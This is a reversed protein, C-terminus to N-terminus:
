VLAQAVTLRGVVAKTMSRKFTAVSSNGKILSCTGIQATADSSSVGTMAVAACEADADCASLCAQYNTNPGGSSSAGIGAADSKWFSYSGSALANAKTKSAASTDGAVVAKFALVDGTNGSQSTAKMMSCASTDYDFTIYQCSDEAKCAAVCTDFSSAASVAEMAASGGMYWASDSIQAFEALCDAPSDAGARAVVSPTFNQNVALYDFSFGTAMVPCADCSSDKERGAVGFNAGFDGGCQQGCAAEGYGTACVDCASSDRGGTTSTSLGTNCATCATTTDARLLANYTGTSDPSLLHYRHCASICLCLTSTLM